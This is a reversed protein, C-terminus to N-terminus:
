SALFHWEVCTRRLFRADGGVDAVMRAADQDRNATGHIAVDAAQRLIGAAIMISDNDPTANGITGIRKMLPLDGVDAKDIQHCAEAAPGGSATITIPTPESAASSPQGCGTLGLLATTVAAVALM